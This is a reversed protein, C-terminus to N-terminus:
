IQLGKILIIRFTRWKGLIYDVSLGRPTKTRFLNIWYDKCNTPYKHETKDFLTTSVDNLYGFSLNLHQYLHCKYVTNEEELGEQTKRITTVAM